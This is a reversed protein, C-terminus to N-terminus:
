ALVPKFAMLYFIALMGIFTPELINIIIFM